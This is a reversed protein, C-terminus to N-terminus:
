TRQNMDLHFKPRDWRTQYAGVEDVALQLETITGNQVDMNVTNSELRDWVLELNSRFDNLSVRNQRSSVALADLSSRLRNLSRLQTESTLNLETVQFVTSFQVTM